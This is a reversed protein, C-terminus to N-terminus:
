PHHPKQRCWSGRFPRVELHLAPKDYRAASSRGAHHHAFSREVVTGGKCKEAPLQRGMPVPSASMQAAATTDATGGGVAPPLASGARPHEQAVM